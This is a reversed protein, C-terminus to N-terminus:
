APRRIVPLVLRSPRTSDHWVTNTAVVLDAHGADAVPVAANPNRDFKPFNSSSVDLRLRHGAAFVYATAVLDVEIEYVRGPVLFEARTTSHRYRCRLIGDCVLESRGDPHVDVLTATFDTDVASSSIHLRARVPGTVELPRELPESTYCLVDHRAETRAQDRPGANAGIFLGPLFTAGGCTMVPDAPDYVFFDSVTDSGPSTSLTGDGDSTRADSRSGLFYDVYETDPLPWDPEDRWINPGMVFIRVPSSSTTAPSDTLHEKFWALQVGTIDVADAGAQVGFAREPFVGSTAGHAWPGIILRQQRADPQATRDRLALYNDITGGLFLDHWGGINLVPIDTAAAGRASLRAWCDDREPHDLWETLYPAIATLLPHDRVPLTRFVDDMADLMRRVEALREAETSANRLLEGLGLTSTVWQLAFGLRFAGGQYLWNDYYDSSTVAASITALAPPREAAALWQTAGTYSSGFMGVSGTSWPQAAAWAITDAGDAGEDAFPRFTGASQSRGRTDQVVVAFGAGAARLVDVWGSAMGYIEKNYPIREVLTPFPGGVTPRYVDTALEVGDRMPVRLNKEVVVDM